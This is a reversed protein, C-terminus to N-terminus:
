GKFKLIVLKEFKDVLEDLQDENYLVFFFNDLIKVMIGECKIDIVVKFFELVVELDNLIVDFSKVWM